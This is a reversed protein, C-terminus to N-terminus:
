GPLRYVVTFTQVTAAPEAFPQGDVMLWCHAHFASPTHQVGFQLEVPLGARRLFYYLTVGRTLCRPQVLPRGLALVATTCDLIQKVQQEDPQAPVRGREFLRKVNPLPFRMLWPVVMAFLLIKGFLRYDRRWDLATLTTYWYGVKRQWRRQAMRCTQTFGSGSLQM